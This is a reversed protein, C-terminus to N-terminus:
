TGPRKMEHVVPVIPSANEGNGGDRRPFDYPIPELGPSSLGGSGGRGGSRQDVFRDPCSRSRGQHALADPQPRAPGASRFEAADVPGANLAHTRRYSRYAAHEDIPGLDPAGHGPQYSRNRFLPPRSPRGYEDGYRGPPPSPFSATRSVGPRDPRDRGPPLYRERNTPPAEGAMMARAHALGAAFGVSYEETPPRMAPLPPFPEEPPPRM